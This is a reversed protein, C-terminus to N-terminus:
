WLGLDALIQKTIAKARPGGYGKGETPGLDRFNAATLYEQDGVRVHSVFWGLNTKRAEDFFNSGTKGSLVTG